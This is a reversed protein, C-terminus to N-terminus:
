KILGSNSYFCIICSFEEFTDVKSSVATNTINNDSHEWWLDKKCLTNPCMLVRSEDCHLRQDLDNLLVLVTEFISLCWSVFYFVSNIITM